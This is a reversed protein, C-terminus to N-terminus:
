DTYEYQYKDNRWLRAGCSRLCFTRNRRGAVIFLIHASDDFAEMFKTGCRKAARLTEFPGGVFSLHAKSFEYKDAEMVRYMNRKKIKM